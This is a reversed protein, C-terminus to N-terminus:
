CLLDLIIDTYKNINQENKIRTQIMTKIYMSVLKRINHLGDEVYNYTTSNLHNFRLYVEDEDEDEDKDYEVYIGNKLKKYKQSYIKIFNMSLLLMYFINIYIKRYYSTTHLQEYMSYLLQIDNLSIYHKLLLYQYVDRSIYVYTDDLYKIPRELQKHTYFHIITSSCHGQIPHSLIDKYLNMIDDDDYDLPLEQSYPNPEDLHHCIYPSIWLRKLEDEIWEKSCLEKLSYSSLKCLFSQLQGYLAHIIVYLPIDGEQILENLIDRYHKYKYCDINLVCESQEKENDYIYTNNLIHYICEDTLKTEM